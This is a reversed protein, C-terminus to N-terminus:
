FKSAFMIVFDSSFWVIGGRQDIKCSIYLIYLSIHVYLDESSALFYVAPLTAYLFTRDTFYSKAARGGGRGMWPFLDRLAM